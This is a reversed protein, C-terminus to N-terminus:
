ERWLHTGEPCSYGKVQEAETKEQEPKLVSIEKKIEKREKKEKQEERQEKGERQKRGQERGEKGGEKWYSILYSAHRTIEESSSLM